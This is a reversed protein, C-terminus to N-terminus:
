GSTFDAYYLALVVPGQQLTESLVIEGGTSSLAFDPAPDGIQLAVANSALLAPLIVGLSRIIKKM